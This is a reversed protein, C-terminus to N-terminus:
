GADPASWTYEGSSLHWQAQLLAPLRLAGPLRDRDLEVSLGYRSPAAAATWAPALPLRLDDLAAILLARAAYSRTDGRDLDRLQYRRSLPFYRLEVHREARALTARWGIRATGYARLDIRFDLVIGHDLADLVAAGPQWQLRATLVGQSVEASRIRLSADGAASGCAALAAFTLASAIKKWCRM